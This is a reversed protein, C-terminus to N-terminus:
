ALKEATSMPTSTPKSNAMNAKQLLDSAYKRQSLSLERSNYAVEIGLFYSLRGLKKVRFTKTLSQILHEVATADSDVIIIYDVYVLIYITVESNHFIFLSADARSPM